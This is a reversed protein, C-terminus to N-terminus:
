SRHKRLLYTVVASLNEEKMIESGVYFQYYDGALALAFKGSPFQKVAEEKFAQYLCRKGCGQENGPVPATCEVLGSQREM